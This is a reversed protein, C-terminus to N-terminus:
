SLTLDHGLRIIFLIILLMILIASFAWKKERTKFAKISDYHQARWAWENGKVALIIALGLNVIPFIPFLIIPFITLKFWNNPNFSGLIINLIVIGVCIVFVYSSLLIHHCLGWIWTLIFAGINWGKIEKPVIANKGQGSTNAPSQDVTEVTQNQLEM